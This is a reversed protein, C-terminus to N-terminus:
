GQAHRLLHLLGAHELRDTYTFSTDGQLTFRASQGTVTVQSDDLSSSVYSFGAPLTETVGGAAGYNSARITVAVRAGPSVSSSSFSRTANPGQVTVSTAGGVTHDNRDDDRLTGSFTYSGPTSSATVTYTFSTDGQLTFRVTQGTVTVQSDDLSSSVYSFGAPLTETVGGAQGYNSARITVVVQGGRDVSAPHFSRNTAPAPPANVTIRNAGGVTHDNRDDDRLTGSFTYSGPTSSATVTYTFSTDGQLTFRVTQGTVTVQSDDLSSSVYSFGVPLAETVGGAQGYNSARITVVVQGGPDVSSSDFSRSASPAPGAPPTNVTVSTDGGVTHDNRDSDRLTGSFTHPGPTSSATVTYTFSTDGQLTFRVNQGSVNVQSADLSSSVYSFGAPLAETVGGAQGYDSATITVVVQAGPDVSTTDFSRSASPTPGAPPTNVTVSTAGGVTHDNLDADRLTGSFTYSGPTNSATVTYTFSRDVQLVFRVDQGTVTVQSDDLSSSVYSFGAPLTETVGGAVGYDSATITVVVQGGPDVSSSDFSRSASPTGQAAAPVIVMVAVMGVTAAVM